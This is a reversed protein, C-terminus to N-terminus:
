TQVASDWTIADPFDNQTVELHGIQFPTGVITKSDMPSSCSVLLM